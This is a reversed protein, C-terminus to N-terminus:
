YYHVEIQMASASYEFEHTFCNAESCRQDENEPFTFGEETWNVPKLITKSHEQIDSFECEVIFAKLAPNPQVMFTGNIREGLDYYQQCSAAYKHLGNM